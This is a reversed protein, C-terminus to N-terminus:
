RVEVNTKCGVAVRLKGNPDSQAAGCSSPCLEILTPSAPDNYRWGNAATCDKSYVLPTESGGGATFGVNIHDKDLTQGAPAAPVAFNCSLKVHSRIAEFAKQLQARTETPNSVSIM